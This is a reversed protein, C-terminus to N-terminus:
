YTREMKGAGLFLGIAHCIWAAALALAAIGGIVAMIGVVAARSGTMAREASGPNALETTILQIFAGAGVIAAIVGVLTGILYLIGAAKWVGGVSNGAVICYISLWFWAIVHLVLLVLFVIGFASAGAQGSAAPQLAG